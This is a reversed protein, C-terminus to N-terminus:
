DIAKKGNCFFCITMACVDQWGEDGMEGKQRMEVQEEGRDTERDRQREM